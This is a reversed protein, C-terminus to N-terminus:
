FFLPILVSSVLITLLPILVGAVFAEGAVMGAALPGAYAAYSGNAGKSFSRWVAAIISGLALGISMSPPLIMAFGLASPVPVWGFRSQVHGEADLQLSGDANRRKMSLLIEFVVGIAAAWLSATLAGPPLYEIGKTMIMGLSAIKLATPASLQGDGTGIGYTDLLMQFTLPVLLAAIGVAFFQAWILANFSGGVRRAVWFSAVTGESSAQPDASIHAANLNQQLKGPFLLGFVFQTANAMLSVPGSGTLGLVKLGAIVLVPQLAVATLVQYWPMAFWLEQVVILLGVSVALGILMNRTSVNEDALSAEPAADASSSKSFAHRLLPILVSTLAAAIMMATAPWMMWQVLYRFHSESGMFGAASGCSTKVFETVEGGKIAALCAEVAEPATGSLAGWAAVHEGFAQIFWVGLLGSLGVALPIMMGFGIIAPDFALSIALAKTGTLHPAIHFADRLFVVFGSAGLGSWLMKRRKGVSETVEPNALTEIVSKGVRGSPWPLSRDSLIFSRLLAGMFVGLSASIALWVSLQWWAPNWDIDQKFESQVYYFAALIVVMFAMSGAAGVMTQILNLKVALEKPATRGGLVAAALFMGAMSLDLGLGLKLTIYPGAAAAFACILVGLAVLRGDLEPKRPTSETSM